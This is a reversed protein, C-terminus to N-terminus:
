TYLHSEKKWINLNVCKFNVLFLITERETEDKGKKRGLERESLTLWVKLRTWCISCKYNCYNIANRKNNYAPHHNVWNQPLTLCILDQTNHCMLVSFMRLRQHKWYVNSCAAQVVISYVKILQWHTKRATDDIAFNACTFRTLSNMSTKSIDNSHITAHSHVDATLANKLSM